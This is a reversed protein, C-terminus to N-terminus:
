CVDICDTKAITEITYNLTFFITEPKLMVTNSYEGNWADTKSLNFDGINITAEDLSNTVLFASGLELPMGLLIGTIIEEKTLKLRKRDGIIVMTMNAIEKRFVLDGFNEIEQMSSGTHRHYVEFPYVDNLVLKTEVGTNSIIAPYTEAEDTNSGREILEAIGSFRGKQFRKSGFKTKLDTNIRAVIEAEKM